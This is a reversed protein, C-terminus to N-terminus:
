PPPAAGVDIANIVRMVGSQAAAIQEARAKADATPVTGTLSVIGSGTSVKVSKGLKDDAKMLATKVALTISADDAKQGVKEATKDIYAGATAAANSASECGMLGLSATMVATWVTARVM